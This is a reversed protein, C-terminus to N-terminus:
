WTGLLRHIDGIGLCFSGFLFRGGYGKLFTKLIIRGGVGPIDL